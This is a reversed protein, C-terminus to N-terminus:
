RQDGREVKRRVKCCSVFTEYEITELLLVRHPEIKRHRCLMKATTELLKLRQLDISIHKKSYSGNEEINVKRKEEHEEDKVKGV